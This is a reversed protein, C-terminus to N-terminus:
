NGGVIKNECFEFVEELRIQKSQNDISYKQCQMRWNPLSIVEIGQDIYKKFIDDPQSYYNIITKPELTKVLHELGKKFYERDLDSSICGNSGIAYTGGKPLGEFVFDYSRDDGFRVNFVIDVGNSQLYYAIARNRYTNWIQMAIPMERYLSFDTTIVGKFKKLIPLYRSPNNWIREFKYDHM